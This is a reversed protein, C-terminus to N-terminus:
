FPFYDNDEKNYVENNSFDFELIEPYDANDDVLIKIPRKIENYDKYCMFEDINEPFSQNSFKLWKEKSSHVAYGKYYDSMCFFINIRKYTFSNENYYLVIKGLKKDNKKSVHIEIDMDEVDYWEPPIIEKIKEPKKGFIVDKLEPLQKAILKKNEEFEWEYGCNPCIRIAIHVIEACNPCQKEFDNKELEGVSRPIKVFVNDLDLGFKQTNTTIDVLLAKDKGEAIRLVRGVAQLFLGASETPRAFILCDLLPFDFGEVLINISVIVRKRGQKWALMNCARELATLQSHVITVTGPMAKEIADYVDQAHKITCCFVCVRKYGDCKIKIADVITEIHIQKEMVEGLESLVYEGSQHGVDALDNEIDSDLFVKGQLQMLYGQKVLEVYTIKHDIIDFLNDKNAAKKDGYIYGHGLRFPTATLGLVKMLSKKERLKKIVRNYQTDSNLSLKHIEDVILLSCGKYNDVCNIFTQITGITLRKNIIKENRSACCIGIDDPHIDSYLSFTRYFQDVLEAKHSLILFESNTERWYRNVLKVAMVTKGAGMIATFLVNGKVQLASYINNLAEIQYERLEFM